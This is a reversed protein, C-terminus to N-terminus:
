MAVTIAVLSVMRLMERMKPYLLTHGWSIVLNASTSSLADLVHM